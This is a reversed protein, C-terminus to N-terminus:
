KERESPPLIHNKEPTKPTGEVTLELFQRFPLAEAKEPTIEKGKERITVSEFGGESVLTAIDRLLPRVFLQKQRGDDPATYLGGALDRIAIRGPRRRNQYFRLILRAGIQFSKGNNTGLSFLEPPIYGYRGDERLYDAAFSTVKIRIYNRNGKGAKIYDAEETLHRIHTSKNESQFRFSYLGITDVASQLEEEASHSDTWGCLKMFDSQNIFIENTDSETIESAVLFWLKQCTISKSLVKDVEAPLDIYQSLGSASGKIWLYENGEQRIATRPMKPLMTAFYNILGSGTPVKTYEGEERLEPFFFPFTAEARQRSLEDPPEYLKVAEIVEARTFDIGKTRFLAKVCLEARHAESIDTRGMRKRWEANLTFWSEFIIEDIREETM